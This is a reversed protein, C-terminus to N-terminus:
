TALTRNSATIQTHKVELRSPRHGSRSLAKACNRAKCRRVREIDEQKWLRVVRRGTILIKPWRLEGAALWRELTGPHVGAQRAVDVNSLMKM